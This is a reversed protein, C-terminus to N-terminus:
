DMSGNLLDKAKQLHEPCIYATRNHGNEDQLGSISGWGPFGQNFHQESYEVNCGDVDCKVTRLIM